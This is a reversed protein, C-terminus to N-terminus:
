HRKRAAKAELKARIKRGADPAAHSSVLQMDSLEFVKIAERKWGEEHGRNCKPIVQQGGQPGLLYERGSRDRQISVSWVKKTKGNIGYLRGLYAASIM